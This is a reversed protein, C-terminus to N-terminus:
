KVKSMAKKMKEFAPVYVSARPSPLVKYVDFYAYDFEGEDFLAAKDDLDMGARCHDVIAKEM